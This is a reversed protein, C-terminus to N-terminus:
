EDNRLSAVTPPEDVAIGEADAAQTAEFTFTIPRNASRDVVLKFVDFRNYGGSIDHMQKPEVCANLDLDAYLIGEEDRREDSVPEGNPGMVISIARPSGDLTRGAEPDLAALEDRMAKDMFGSVVINFAKAEFAHAAARLRIAQSLDYTDGVEPPKSPWVGPFAAIHIQEGQAMLTYRALPNTNEGCILMGIRGLRTDCVQLGAGDGNAWVLKEYFTPVLKRHHNLITGNDGILVNANWICGVSAESRENFGLSVFVGHERAKHCVRRIEPGTVLLASEALRCFLEHNHIPARLACWHPFAPIYTEPFAILEAGHGAAEEIISCTKEITAPTDLFVLAVHAAAVKCSPYKGM